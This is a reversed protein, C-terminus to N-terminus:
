EDSGGKKGKEQVTNEDIWKKAKELAKEYSILSLRQFRFNKKLLYGGSDLREIVQVSGTKNRGKGAKGGTTPIRIELNM